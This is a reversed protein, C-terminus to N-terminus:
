VVYNRQMNEKPVSGHYSIIRNVVPESKYIYLKYVSKFQNLQM